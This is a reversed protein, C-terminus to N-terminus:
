RRIYSSKPFCLYEAEEKRKKLGGAPKDTAGPTGWMTDMITLYSFSSRNLGGLSNKKKNKKCQWSFESKKKENINQLDPIKVKQAIYVQVFCLSDSEEKNPFDWIALDRDHWYTFFLM